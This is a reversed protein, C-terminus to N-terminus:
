LKIHIEKDEALPLHRKCTTAPIYVMRDTGAVRRWYGVREWSEIVYRAERRGGTSKTSEEIMKKAETTSKLIRTIVYDTEEPDTSDEYTRRYRRVKQEEVVESKPTLVRLVKTRTPREYMMIFINILEMLMFTLDTTDHMVHPVFKNIADFFNSSMNSINGWIVDVNINALNNPGLFVDTDRFDVLAYASSGNNNYRILYFRIWNYKPYIDWHLYLEGDDKDVFPTAFRFWSGYRVHELIMTLNIPNHGNISMGIRENYKMTRVIERESFAIKPIRNVIPPISLFKPIDVMYLSDQMLDDYNPNHVGILNTGYLGPANKFEETAMNRYVTMEFENYTIDPTTELDDRCADKYIAEMANHMIFMSTMDSIIPVPKGVPFKGQITFIRRLTEKAFKPDEAYVFPGHFLDVMGILGVFVMFTSSIMYRDAKNYIQVNVACSKNGDKMTNHHMFSIYVSHVKTNIRYTYPYKGNKMIRNAIASMRIYLNRLNSKSINKFLDKDDMEFTPTKLMYRSLILERLKKAPGEINKHDEGNLDMYQHAFGLVMEVKPIGDRGPPGGEGNVVIEKALDFKTPDQQQNSQVFPIINGM